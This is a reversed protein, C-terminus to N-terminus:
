YLFLSVGTIVEHTNGSLLSLMEFADKRGNPKGIIRNNIFVITDSSVILDQKDVREMVDRGKEISIRRVFEQMSECKKRKEDINPIEVVPFINILKLM